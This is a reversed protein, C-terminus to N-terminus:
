FDIGLQLYALRGVEPAGVFAQYTTDFMNDVNALLHLGDAFPLAYRASLDVLTYSDIDGAYVGSDQPFGGNYRVKAGVRLGLESLRYDAGVKFKQKPANLAVNVSDGSGAFNPFVFLDDDVWSYSATLSLDDVPYYGVSLDMGYLTVDGFNRYTLLVATPDYAQEPSVTGYPVQAAGGAFITALEDAATGNNNGASVGPVTLQDLAGLVGAVQANAPDALAAGFATGLEAGLVTPDLFVNPTEVRLPGVFDEIDSRYLDAAIVLNTGIIGKYGLELTQTITSSARPVDFADAVPDFGLTETNLSALTNRLGSLQTPVMSPLAALVQTAQAEGVAQATAADVGQAIAQQAILGPLIAELGPTLQALTAGRGINWQVNTAVPDHLAIFGDADLSYGPSGPQLGLAALQGQIAPAFNSRYMPSGDAMRRFTFGDDFGSRYTGQARVDITPAFGLTSSFAPGLGYADRSSVLDLYLNNTTPTSFARNYTMRLTQSEAPKYVLAARPSIEADTLRNHDDYRLALVAQLNHGLDTTSQVYAGYEDIDDDNENNGTITGETDPRTLLADVGYIFEQRDGLKASHQVQFVQFTSKDIISDGSRLLFTDGADSWNRYYQVFWDQYVVRAQLYNYTWDRGLGAGLGTLEIFDGSNYGYSLIGTLEDSARYDIRAEVSQREIDFDRMTHLTSDSGSIVEYGTAQYGRPDAAALASEDRDYGKWDTGTYYQASIKYGLQPTILGAHRLSGKRLSREGLGVQVSTGASSLPSRTIIHMVGNASNPGYLAAGPGLVVEIREIDANTLPIFNHANLRLSPVNAIRNDTMTLMAGSFINNFGRTVVNSQVLGTKAFDVGPQDRVFESVTLVSRTEIDGADVVSISAPADLAKEQTRSASVVHQELDIVAEALTVDLSAGAATVQVAPHASERYGIHTVTIDYVGASLGRVVYNGLPGSVAGATPRREGGEVLINVGPLPQGDTDTIRGRLEAADAATITVLWACAILTRLIGPM